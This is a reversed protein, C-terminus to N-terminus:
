FRGGEEVLFGFSSQLVTVGMVVREPGFLILLCLIPCLLPPSPLDLIAELIDVVEVFLDVSEDFAYRGAALFPDDVAVGFPFM